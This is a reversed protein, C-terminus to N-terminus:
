KGPFFKSLVVTIIGALGGALTGLVGYKVEAVAQAKEIASIRKSMDALALTTDAMSKLMQQAWEDWSPTPPSM